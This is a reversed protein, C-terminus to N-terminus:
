SWNTTIVREFFEDSEEDSTNAASLGASLDAYYDSFESKTVVIIKAKLNPNSLQNNRRNRCLVRFQKWVIDHSAAGLTTLPHNDCNFRKKLEDVPMSPAGNAISNWVENILRSRHAPIDGRVLRCFFNFDIVGNTKKSDVLDIVRDIYRPDMTVGWCILGDKLDGRDIKGDFEIDAGLFFTRMNWYADIGKSRIMYQLESLIDTSTPANATMRTSMLGTANRSLSSVSQDGATAPASAGDATVIHWFYHPADPKALTYPTSLGKFESIMLGLKGFQNTRDAYCELEVGFDTHDRQKPDCVLCCNTQRHTLLLTDSVNVPRGNFLYRESANNRGQSPTTLVWVSDADQQASMFVLQRNTTKTANRENKKTSCLYLPPDMLKSEPKVLLAENCMLTFAQGIRLIDDSPDSEINQLHSPARTVRFTNRSMATREGSCSVFFKGSGPMFDEYPDCALFHASNQHQLQIVDGFRINGDDSFTQGVKQTCLGMKGELQRIALNGKNSRKRFDTLKAEELSVEEQWNGIRTSSSFKPGGSLQQPTFQM